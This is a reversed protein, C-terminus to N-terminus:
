LFRVSKHRSVPSKQKLQLCYQLFIEHSGSSGSALRNTTVDYAYGARVTGPIYGPLWNVGAMVAVADIYRYTLGGWIFNNYEVIANLDIQATVLDSKVFISPKLVFLPNPLPFDYGATVFLHSKMKFSTNWNVVEPNDDFGPLRGTDSFSAQNLHSMSAGVYLKSTQYWLGFDMDFSTAQYGGDPILPDSYSPSVSRWNNGIGFQIAGVSVGVGLHGPDSGIIDLPIHASYMGKVTTFHMQGLADGLVVLGGGSRLNIGPITFTGHGGLLYSEPRGEFGVWQQRGITYVCIGDNMGAYAPNFFLKNNVNMSFQPDQQAQTATAASVAIAVFLIGIKFNM